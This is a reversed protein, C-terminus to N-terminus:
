PIVLVQTVLSVGSKGHVFSILYCLKSLLAIEAHVRSAPGPVACVSSYM